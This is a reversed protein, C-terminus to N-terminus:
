EGGIDKATEEKKTTGSGSVVGTQLKGIKGGDGVGWGANQAGAFSVANFATHDLWRWTTGFDTSYSTGSPGAAICSPGTTGPVLTISEKLGSPRTRGAVSWTRGGDTTRAVDPATDAPKALDGALALGRSEDQFAISRIGGNASSSLPVSAVSWTKGADTTRFVRPSSAGGTGFWASARGKVALATGAAALGREGPLPRPISTTAEQWSVGGDNTTVVLFSGGGLPDAVMLGNKEDWFALGFFAIGDTENEYVMTAALGNTTRYLRAPSGTNIFFANKADRVALCRFDLKGAGPAWHTYWTHGGDITRGWTGKAGAVFCVDASLARVAYLDAGTGAPQDRWKSALQFLLAALAFAM